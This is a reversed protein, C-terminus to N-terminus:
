KNKNTNNPFHIFASKREKYWHIGKACGHMPNPDYESTIIKGIEYPIINNEHVFSYSTHETASTSIEEDIIPLQIDVVIAKNSRHKRNCMFYEDDIAMLFQADIPIILKIIRYEGHSNKCAKWGIYEKDLQREDSITDLLLKNNEEIRSDVDDISHKITCTTNTEM